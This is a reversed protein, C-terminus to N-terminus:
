QFIKKPPVGSRKGRLTPKDAEVYVFYAKPTWDQKTFFDRATWAFFRKQAVGQKQPDRYRSGTKPPRPSVRHIPNPM